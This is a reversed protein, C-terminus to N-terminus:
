ALYRKHPPSHPLDTGIGDGGPHGQVLDELSDALRKATKLLVVHREQNVRVDPAVRGVPLLGVVLTPNSDAVVAANNMDEAPQDGGVM